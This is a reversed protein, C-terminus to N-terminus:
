DNLLHLRIMNLAVQSSLLKNDRRRPGFRFEKVRVGESHALGVYVLGVPKQETGGGPGAIGTLSLGLDAKMLARVGQAMEWATEESVAGYQQLTEKRVGLLSVKAANSYAVVGGLMFASSGPVDTFRDGVLGGTCSEATAVTLNRETLTAAVAAELETTDYGYIYKGARQHIDASLAELREQDSSTLRIDVGIMRPLFAVEVQSHERLDLKGTLASEMIGTTRITKVYWKTETRGGLWPLITSDLMAQMEAPVGPLAFLSLEPTTFHLGRASGIPNPIVEGVDPRLAQNRNIEPLKLKRRSFREKLEEWYDTDFVPVAGAFEYLAAQTVDDHTPGLGGTLILAQVEAPVQALAQLIAARSDGVTTHWVVQSGIRQVEQGIRAANTDTRLGSLLENGITILGIKM